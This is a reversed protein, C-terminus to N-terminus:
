ASLSMCFDRIARRAMALNTRMRDLIVLLLIQAEKDPRVPRIVHFHHNFTLIVDELGDGTALEGSLLGVVNAIDAARGAAAPLNISGEAQLSAVVMGTSADILCALACGDIQAVPVLLPDAVPVTVTM